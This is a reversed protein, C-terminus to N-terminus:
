IICGQSIWYRGEGDFNNLIVAISWTGAAGGACVNKIQDGIGVTITEEIVVNGDGDVVIVQFSGGSAATIEMHFDAAVLSNTWDFTAAASGGEGTVDGNGRAADFSIIPFTCSGDEMEADPNYNNAAPDTCGEVTCSTFTTAGILAILMSALVLKVNRM